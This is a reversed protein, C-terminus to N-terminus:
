ILIYSSNFGATPLQVQCSRLPLSSSLSEEIGVPNPTATTSAHSEDRSAGISVTSFILSTAFFGFSSGIELARLDLAHRLDSSLYHAMNPPVLNQPGPAALTTRLLIFSSLETRQASEQTCRTLDLQTMDETVFVKM